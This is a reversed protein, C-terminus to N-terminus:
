LNGKDSNGSPSYGEFIQLSVRLVNMSPPLAYAFPRPYFDIPLCCLHSVPLLLRCSVSLNCSHRLQRSLVLISHPKSIYTKALTKTNNMLSLTRWFDILETSVISADKLSGVDLSAWVTEFQPSEVTLKM